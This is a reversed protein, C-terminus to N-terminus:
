SGSAAVEDSNKIAMEYKKILVAQHEALKNLVRLETELNQKKMVANELNLLNKRKRNIDLIKQVTQNLAIRAKVLKRKISRTKM